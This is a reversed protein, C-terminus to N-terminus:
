RGDDRELQLTFHLGSEKQELSFAAARMNREALYIFTQPVEAWQAALAMEGGSAGPQWRILQRGSSQFLLPSFAEGEGSNIQEAEIPPKLNMLAQWRNQCAQRREALTADGRLRETKGPLILGWWGGMLVLAIATIGALARLRPSLAYWFEPGHLM